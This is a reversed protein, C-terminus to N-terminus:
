QDCNFTVAMPFKPVIYASFDFRDGIHFHPVPVQVIVYTYKYSNYDDVCQYKSDALVLQIIVLDAPRPSHVNGALAAPWVPFLTAVARDECHVQFRAPDYCGPIEKTNAIALISSMQLTLCVSRPVQAASNPKCVCQLNHGLNLQM